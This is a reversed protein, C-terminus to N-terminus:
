GLAHESIKGDAQNNRKRCIYTSGHDIRTLRVDAGLAEAAPNVSNTVWRSLALATDCTIQSAPQLVVGPVVANLQYPANVGCGDYGEIPPLREFQAGLARLHRECEAIAAEDVPPLVTKTPETTESPEGDQTTTQEELTASPNPRPFPVEAAGAHTAVGSALVLFAALKSM